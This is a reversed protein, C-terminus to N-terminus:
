YDGDNLILVNADHANFEVVQEPKITQVLGLRKLEESLAIAAAEQSRAAIVASTGVPWHGSFSNCTWVKM